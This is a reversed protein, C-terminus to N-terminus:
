NKAYESPTCNYIKKFCKSFYAHNNFGVSYGVQSINIDSSKLLQAALKLRQSRIFESTSLGTLVKLKRHLQMRSMGVAKCFEDVHFSSEILKSDLVSQVQNLFREDISNIAIDTPKLIVEQSYRVQLKKRIAILQAVKLLLLENNFPKTIYADAGAKIGSIQNEEGAKATLLIIPIHNTLENTKLTNCLVVGNKLPMMIDCIVIDPVYELALKIGEEGNVAQIITYEDKLLTGIYNNMDKNDEVILAIPNETEENIIKNELEYTNKNSLNITLSNEDFVPDSIIENEKFVKKYIPLLITFTTWQNLISEAKIKGKHLVVLEKVLALGIGIGESNNNAQYFRDFIKIVKNPAIGAGTNKIIFKLKNEKVFAEAIITGKIPTYKIANSLLNTVIKEVIDKDFWTEKPISNINVKFNIEKQNTMFSFGDLLKELFSTLNYPAVKLKLSGSEIKSIDLLQNVLALLRTTNRQIVEFNTRDTKSLQRKKLQQQIPGSILTLPTRFEHSINTFGAIDFDLGIIRNQQIAHSSVEM